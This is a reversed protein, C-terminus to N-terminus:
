SSAALFGAIADASADFDDWLVSHGGPVAVMEVNPAEPVDVLIWSREGLVVLTPCAPWPPSPMTMESWAVIVAPVSYRWRWRGDGDLALHDAAEEELTARPTTFLSGDGLRAEIAEDASGFSVDTCMGAAREATLEPPLVMAPDLLAAREVRAPHRAALEAVLKGGFSHGVWAAAGAGLADATDVLDRVHQEVGWPPERTSRGHGRLDIGVVRYGSLREEALRRYRRGHGTVGHLCIVPPGQPDGWECVALKV